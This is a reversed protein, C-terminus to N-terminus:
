RPVETTPVRRSEVFVQYGITAPAKIPLDGRELAIGEGDLLAGTAPDLVLVHRMRFGGRDTDGSVVVGERGARDTVRGRFVVGDVDALARLLAAQEAPEVVKQGWVESVANVWDGADWDPEAHLRARLADRDDTPVPERGGLEGPGYATDDDPHEPTGEIAWGETVTHENVIRGSGDDAMWFRQVSEEWHSTTVPPAPDEGDSLLTSTALGWGTTHVYDYRGHAKPPQAAAREALALLVARAPVEVREYALMPPTAAYAGRTDAPVVVYAAVAAAVAAGALGARLLGRPVRRAAVAPPTALISALVTRAAADLPAAAPAPDAARVRTLLDTM